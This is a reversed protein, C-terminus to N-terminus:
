RRRIRALIPRFAALNKRQSLNKKTKDLNNQLPFREVLIKYLWSNERYAKAIRNLKETLTPRIEDLLLRLVKARSVKGTIGEIGFSLYIVPTGEYYHILGAGAKSERYTFLLKSNENATAILDPSGQDEASDEGDLSFELGRGQIVLDEEDSEDQLFRAGLVKQYFESGQLDRGIDQGSLILRGGSQIYRRLMEQESPELTRRWTMGTYWIVVSYPLLDNLGHLDQNDKQIDYAVSLTDLSDGIYSEFDWSLDDGVVLVEPSPQLIVRKELNKDFLFQLKQSRYGRAIIKLRLFSGRLTKNFVGGTFASDELPSEQFEIRASPILLGQSDLLKLRLAFSKASALTLALEQTEGAKIVADLIKPFAAYSELRLQLPGEPAFIRLFGDSDTHYIKASGLVRVRSPHARPAQVRLNLWGGSKALRVAEYANLLGHGTKPDKGQVDLDEASAILAEELLDVSIAPNAELMLAAVGAVHPAAMSTGSLREYGAQYDVSLVEYGPAVLEPKIYEVGGWFINGRSSFWPLNRDPTLAGVAFSHPFGGPTRMTSREPGSNGAAFIPLIGAERWGQVMEWMPKEQELTGPFGGWSNSIIRPHDDTDPNGDPDVMWQMARLIVSQSTKRRSSFIKGVVFRVKPAVGIQKGSLSGGGITGMVHSGHGLDDNPQDDPMLSIFDRSKVVKDKFEPHDSYGTDIVGVTVGRGSVGLEKWARRAQIMELGYTLPEPERPQKYLGRDPLELFYERDYHISLIAKVKLLRSLMQLSATIIATNNLWLSEMKIQEGSLTLRKLSERLPAQTKRSWAMKQSQIQASNNAQSLSLPFVGFRAIVTFEGKKGSNLLNQLESDLHPRSQPTTLLGLFIFVPFVRAIVRLSVAGFKPLVLPDHSM